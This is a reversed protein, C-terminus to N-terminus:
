RALPALDPPAAAQTRFYRPQDYFTANENPAHWGPLGLVPLACLAPLTSGSLQEGLWLDANELLEGSPAEPDFQTDHYLLAKGMLGVFPERLAELVAHGFCWVRTHRM